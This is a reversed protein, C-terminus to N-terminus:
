FASPGPNEKLARVTPSVVVRVNSNTRSHARLKKNTPLIAATACQTRKGETENSGAEAIRDNNGKSGEAQGREENELGPEGERRRGEQRRGSRTGM